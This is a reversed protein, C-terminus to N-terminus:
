KVALMMQVTVESEICLLWRHHPRTKLGESSSRDSLHRSLWSWDNLGEDVCAIVSRGGDILRMGVGILSRGVGVLSRGGSDLRRSGDIISSDLGLLREVIGIVSSNLGTLRRGNAL